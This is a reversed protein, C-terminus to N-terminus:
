TSATFREYRARLADAQTHVPLARGEVTAASVLGIWSNALFIETATNVDKLFLSCERAGTEKIVWERVVGHRAGCALSPTRITDGHVLFVNSLCGSVLEANENFLLAEDKGKKRARQLADVNGWYNATKLGGFLPWYLDHSLALDYERATSPPRDEVLLFLRSEHVPDTPAGDGATIYLRVFGERGAAALAGPLAALAAEPLPFERQAAAQRLREVHEALFLARGGTLRLSEFLAMGYRFGRDAIPLSDCPAFAEGSWQWARLSSSPIM